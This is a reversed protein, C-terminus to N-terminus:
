SPPSHRASAPPAVGPPPPRRLWGLSADGFSAHGAPTPPGDPHPSVERLALLMHTQPHSYRPLPASPTKISHVPAVAAQPGGPQPPHCVQIHRPLTGEQPLAHPHTEDLHSICRPHLPPPTAAALAQQTPSARIPSCAISWVEPLPSFESQSFLAEQM